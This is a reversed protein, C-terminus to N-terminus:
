WCRVPRAGTRPGCQWLAMSPPRMPCGVYPPTWSASAVLRLPCSADGAGRAAGVPPAPRGRPGAGPPMGRERGPTRQLSAPGPLWCPQRQRHPGMARPLSRRCAWAPTDLRCRRSWSPCRARSSTRGYPTLKLGKTRDKMALAGRDIEDYANDRVQGFTHADSASYPHELDVRIRDQLPQDFSCLLEPRKGSVDQVIHTHPLDLEILHKGEETGHLVTRDTLGLSDRAQLMRGLPHPDRHVGLALQQQRDVDAITGQRHSLAHDVVDGLDQGGVTGRQKEGIPKPPIQRRQQRM